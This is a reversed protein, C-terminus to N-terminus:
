SRAELLVVLYYLAPANFLLSDLRDLVGGHGPILGGTDKTGVSRKIVSESLDGAQGVVGLLLGAALVRATSWAPVLWARLLVAVLLSVVVQAIAGEITKGPSIRPALKRRGIASGVGYAASEGCWTVGVLFLVLGAGDPRSRLLVAHGLLWGVYLLSFLAVATTDTSPARGNVVPTVLISLVALTLMAIAAGSSLAFSAAVASVLPVVLWVSSPQAGRELMRVLEWSALAALLVVLADFVVPPGALLLWVFVPVFVVATILRKWVASTVM